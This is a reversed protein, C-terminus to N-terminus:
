KKEKLYLNESLIVPLTIDAKKQLGKIIETIYWSIGGYKQRNFIDSDFLIKLKKPM